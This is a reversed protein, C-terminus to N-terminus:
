TLSHGESMLTRSEVHQNTNQHQDPDPKLQHNQVSDPTGLVYKVDIPHNVLDYCLLNNQHLLM